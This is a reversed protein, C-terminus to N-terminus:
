GRRARRTRRPSYKPFVALDLPYFDSPNLWSSCSPGRLISERGGEHEEHGEHHISPSFNCSGVSLFRISKVENLHGLPKRLIVVRAHTVEDPIDPIFLPEVPGEVPDIVDDVGGGEFLHRGGLVVGELGHLSVDHARFVDDIYGGVLLDLPHHGETRVLGGTGDIKVAGGFQTRVFEEGGAVGVGTLRFGAKGHDAVAVHHAAPAGHDGKEQFLPRSPTNGM